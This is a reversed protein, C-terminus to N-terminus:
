ANKEDTQNIKKVRVLDVKKESVMEATIHLKGDQFNEGQKPISESLSILYGSLTNYDGEPLELEEYKNNLYSIELRGAFIYQGEGVKMELHEEQDHEDEIEGFLEELIDEMTILGAVGGYEDVVCAINVSSKSFREILDKIRMQEPIFEIDMIMDEIKNVGQILQMHHVYGVIDDIDERIVILRSLHTEIFRERLEEISSSLDIEQIETRPIMVERVRIDQFHLANELLERDFEDYHEDTATSQIYHVLDTRTFASETQEPSTKLVLRLLTKSIRIMIWAPIKLIWYIIRLPYALIYLLEVAYLRFLTKPLFEGFILVILTIVLTGFLLVFGENLGLFEFYPSLFKSMAMSFVVLVINNGVLLVGLFDSTRDYFKSLLVGRASGEKKKLEIRVKGASIFAIETGSFLASFFLSILIVSALM